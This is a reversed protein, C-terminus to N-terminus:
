GDFHHLRNAVYNVFCFKFNGLIFCLTGRGRDNM